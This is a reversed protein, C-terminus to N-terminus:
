PSTEAQADVVVRVADRVLDDMASGSQNQNVTATVVLDLDPVYVAVTGWFGSHRYTTYGEVEAEWIGMRYDGPPIARPSADPLPELGEYTTLMTNVTEPESYVGGTFLARTFRALDGVTAVVGGGGYLDFSPDFEFTDIEGFFQHARDQVGEPAPELTEWWTSNMGSREYEILERAAEALSQGSVEEIIGGLLVYGTDCYTYIEGPGAHPDGWEVALALQEDRTWRHMPDSVIRDGYEAPSSHDFLGSTHTLLHRVTM